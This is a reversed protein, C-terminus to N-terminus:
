FHLLGRGVKAAALVTSSASPPIHESDIWNSEEMFHDYTEFGFYRQTCYNRDM